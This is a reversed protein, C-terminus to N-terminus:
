GQETGHEITGTIDIAQTSNHSQLSDVLDHMEEFDITMSLKNVNVTQPVPGHVRDDRYKIAALSVNLNDPQTALQQLVQACKTDPLAEEILRAYSPRGKPNGSQGPIWSKPRLNPYQPFPPAEISKEIPFNSDM